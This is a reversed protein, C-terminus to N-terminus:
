ESADTGGQVAKAERLQRATDMLERREEPEVQVPVPGGGPGSVELRAKDHWVKPRQGKLYFIRSTVEGALADKYLAGEVRDVCAEKTDLLALDFSEDEGRWNHVTSRCLGVVRAANTITGEEYLAVLLAGKLEARGFTYAARAPPPAKGQAALLLEQPLQDPPTITPPEVVLAPATTTPSPPPPDLRGPPEDGAHDRTPSPTPPPPPDERTPTPAPTLPHENAAVNDLSSVDM